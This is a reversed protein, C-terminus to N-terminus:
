PQLSVLDALGHFLLERPADSGDVPRLTRRRIKWRGSHRELEWRNVAVRHVRYGSSTGHGPLERPAGDRDPHLILLYSTVAACDGRLDILPLGTFHALGSCIADVHAPKIIAAAIADAGKASELGPGRDFVGDEVCVSAIYEAYATDAAPPHSAILEYIALKDEIVRLREDLSAPTMETM